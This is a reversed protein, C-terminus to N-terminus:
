SAHNGNNKLDDLEKRSQLIQRKLDRIKPSDNADDEMLEPSDRKCDIKVQEFDSRVASNQEDCNRYGINYYNYVYNIITNRTIVQM